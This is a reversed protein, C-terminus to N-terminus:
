QLGDQGQTLLVSETFCTHHQQWLRRRSALNHSVRSSIQSRLISTSQLAPGSPQTLVLCGSQHDDNKPLMKNSQINSSNNLTKTMTDGLSRLRRRHWRKMRCFRSRVKDGILISTKSANTDLIPMHTNAIADNSGNQTIIATPLSSIPWNTSHDFILALKSFSNPRKM